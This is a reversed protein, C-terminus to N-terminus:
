ARTNTNADNSSEEIKATARERERAIAHDLNTIKLDISKVMAVLEDRQKRLAVLRMNHVLKTM